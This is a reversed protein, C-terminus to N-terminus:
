AIARYDTLLFEKKLADGVLMPYKHEKQQISNLNTSKRIGRTWRITETLMQKDGLAM